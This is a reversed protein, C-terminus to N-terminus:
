ENSDEPDDPDGPKTPIVNIIPPSLPTGGPGGLEMPQTVKGETRDCILGMAKVNGKAAAQITALVTVESLRMRRQEQTRPDKADVKYKLARTFLTGWNLSGKPRGKPNGSQGPKFPKLNQTNYSM